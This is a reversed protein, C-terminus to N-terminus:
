EYRSRPKKGLVEAVRGPTPWVMVLVAAFLAQAPFMHWSPGTLLAVISAFLAGGEAGAAIAIVGSRWQQIRAAGDAAAQRKREFVRHLVASQIAIMATLILVVNRLATAAEADLETIPGMHWALAAMIVVAMTLAGLLVAVTGATREQTHPDDM